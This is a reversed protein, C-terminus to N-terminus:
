GAMMTRQIASLRSRVSTDIVQDGVRIILGGLIAPDVTYRIELNKGYRAALQQELQQQQPAELAVASQIEAATVVEGVGAVEGFARVIEPLLRLDNQQVLTLLFNRLQAPTNAPLAAEVRRAQEEASGGGAALTDAISRLQRQWEAVLVEHLARAYVRANQESL